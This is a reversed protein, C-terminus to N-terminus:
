LNYQKKLKAYTQEFIPLYDKAHEAILMAMAEKYAHSINNRDDLMALWVQDSDILKNQYAKRLTDRPSVAEIKEYQLIKKLMRWFLELTFEFRKITSDVVVESCGMDPLEVVERLRSIVVGLSDFQEKWGVDSM